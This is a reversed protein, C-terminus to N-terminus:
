LREVENGYTDLFVLYRTGVPWDIDTETAPKQEISRMDASQYITGSSHPRPCSACYINEWRWVVRWSGADDPEIFMHVDSSADPSTITVVLYGRKKESWHKWIFGRAKRLSSQCRPSERLFPTKCGLHGGFEYASLNRDATPTEKTPSPTPTVPVKPTSDTLRTPQTRSSCSCVSVVLLIRILFTPRFM